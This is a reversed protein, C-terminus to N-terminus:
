WAARLLGELQEVAVPKPNNQVTRNQFALQALRPLDAEAVGVDRLRAPLGLRATLEAIAAAAAQVGAVASRGDASIGLAAVAPLLRDATADANFRLVHPLLITNALGHPVGASGGLVHCLGHHLGMSVSSLALGALHAGELMGSRAALDDGHRVCHPLWTWILEVARAAAASSFPHRTVSYLAEFCHALANLGSAASTQAPLGLTLNPDYLVLRPVSRPDSVTVKRPPTERSHTVGFVPTMESGAYTSPIAVVPLGSETGRQEALAFAAAKAMGIPSGGGLGIFADARCERALALVEDLQVDQVHPQVAAFVGALRAGLGAAVTTAAGHAALSPSTCLVLRQWGFPEVAQGLQELCGPRFLVQQDFSRYQFSDM